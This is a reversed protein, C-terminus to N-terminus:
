VRLRDTSGNCLYPWKFNELRWRPNPEVPLLPMRDASRSFGERSGFMIHIPRGMASIHGNSIKWFRLDTPRQDDTRLIYMTRM